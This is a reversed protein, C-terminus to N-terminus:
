ITRAAIVPIVANSMHRGTERAAAAVEAEGCEGGRRAPRAETAIKARPRVKAMSPAPLAQEQVSETGDQDVVGIRPVNRAACRSREQNLYTILIGVSGEAFQVKRSFAM